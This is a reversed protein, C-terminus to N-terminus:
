SAIREASLTEIPETLEAKEEYEDGDEEDPAKEGRCCTRVM